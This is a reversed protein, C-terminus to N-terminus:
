NGSTHVDCNRTPQEGQIFTQSIVSEKPCNNTALLGSDTCVKVTVETSGHINCPEWPRVSEDHIGRGTIRDYYKTIVQGAPCNRTAVKGSETCVKLEEYLSSGAPGHLPCEQTPETGSVFMEIRTDPCTPSALYGSDACIEVSTSVGQPVPFDSAPTGALAGSMFRGWIRAATGSGISVGNVVLPKSQSDNGIWVVALLDPTYGAFWANTNDNTTGTKGAAPRGINASRGTGREIVGRMMDTMVYATQESLVVTRKTRNRYLVTGSQDRVELIALPEVRIGQNALSSYARAMEYPTVGRTLGGLALSALNLDNKPGNSVLSDLGMRQAYRFVTQPGLQDVLKVAVSNVSNELAERLTIPGRYIKDYNQPKYM